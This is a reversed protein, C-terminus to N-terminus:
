PNNLEVVVGVFYHAEDCLGNLGHMRVGEFWPVLAYNEAAPGDFIERKAGFGEGREGYRVDAEGYRVRALEERDGIYGEVHQCLREHHRDKSWTEDAIRSRFPPRQVHPRDVLWIHHPPADLLFEVGHNGVVRLPEQLDAVLHLLPLPFNVILTM